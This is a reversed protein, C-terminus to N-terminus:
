NGHRKKWYSRWILEEIRNQLRSVPGKQRQVIITKDEGYVEKGFSTILRRAEIEPTLLLLSNKQPCGSRSHFVIKVKDGKVFFHRMVYPYLRCDIPRDQYIRCGSDGLYPCVRGEKSSIIIFEDSPRIILDEAYTKFHKEFEKKTLMLGCSGKLTCCSNDTCAICPNDSVTNM